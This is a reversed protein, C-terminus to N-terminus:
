GVAEIALGADGDDNSCPFTIVAVQPRYSV